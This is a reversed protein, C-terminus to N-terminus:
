NDSTAGLVAEYADLTDSIGVDGQAHIAIRYGRGHYHKVMAISEARNQIKTGTDHRPTLYPNAEAATRNSMGGDLCLGYGACFTRVRFRPTHSLDLTRRYPASRIDSPCPWLHRVNMRLCKLILFSKQAPMSCFFKRFIRNAGEAIGNLEQMFDPAYAHAGAHFSNGRAVTEEWTEGTTRPFIERYISLITQIRDWAAEGYAQGRKVPDTHNLEIIPITEM